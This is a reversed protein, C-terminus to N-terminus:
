SHPDASDQRKPTYSGILKPEGEDEPLVEIGPAQLVRVFDDQQRSSTCLRSLQDPLSEENSLIPREDEHSDDVDGM